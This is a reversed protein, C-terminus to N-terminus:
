GPLLSNALLSIGAVLLLVPGLINWDLNFFFICTLLTLIVGAIAASRAAKNFSGAQRSIRWAAAFASLAPILIFLAWWNNIAIIKLNQLLIVGALLILFVGIFWSDGRRELRHQRREERRNSFSNQPVNDSM